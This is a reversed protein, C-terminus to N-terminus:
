RAGTYSVRYIVGYDDDTFLLSGDRAVALGAIRATYHRGDATLFRTAFDEIAAPQGNQFRIRVLKYGSFERRNWSGRLTAFADGRYEAPFQTGTYFKMQIPSSHATYTLVPAATRPCLEEKRSGMPETALYDDPVRNAYCHPWGYDTAVQIRNIEDPPSDDGRWDSGMDSGWMERTQPHFGFGVTNRLGRAFVGRETGDPRARVITAHEQNTENCANCSSGISIYMMGDPGFEITRNPHQGGDPLDNIIVKMPELTGDARIDASQVERVSAVYLKGGHLALGHAMLIDRAVQRREDARGDGDRDRLMWVDSSDRRSVYVTGDEAVALMRPNGVNAAFVNVTFGAPVRLGRAIEDPNIRPLRGPTNRVGSMEVQKAPTNNQAQAGTAAVLAALSGLLINRKM